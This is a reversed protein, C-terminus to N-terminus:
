KKTESGGSSLPSRLHFIRRAAWNPPRPDPFVLPYLRPREQIVLGQTLGENRGAHGHAAAFASRLGAGSASFGPLTTPRVWLVHRSTGRLLERAMMDGWDNLGARM